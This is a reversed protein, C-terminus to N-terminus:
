LRSCLGQAVKPVVNLDLRRSMADPLVLDDGLYCHFKENILAGARGEVLDPLDIEGDAIKRLQSTLSKANSHPSTVDLIGDYTGVSYGLCTLM